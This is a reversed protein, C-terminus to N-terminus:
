LVHVQPSQLFVHSIFCWFLTQLSFIATLFTFTANLIFPYFEHFHWHASLLNSHHNRRFLFQVSHNSPYYFATWVPCKFFQQFLSCSTMSRCKSWVVSIRCPASLQHCGKWHTSPFFIWQVTLYIVTEPMQFMALVTLKSHLRFLPENMSQM